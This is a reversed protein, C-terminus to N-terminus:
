LENQPARKPAVNVLPQSNEIANASSSLVENKNQSKAELQEIKVSRAKDQRKTNATNAKREFVISGDELLQRQGNYFLVPRIWYKDCLDSVSVKDILHERLIAIKQESTVFRRKSM